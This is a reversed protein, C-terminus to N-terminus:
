AAAKKFPDVGPAEDHQIFRLLPKLMRNLLPHRHRAWVFMPEPKCGLRAKPELATRGFSVRRCGFRISQEVSAHLMRLYLPVGAGAVERDFGIHYAIATDGDRVTVIFALPKGERRAVLLSGDEGAARMLESWYSPRLTFPRLAAGGHVQLYLEHLADSETAAQKADLTEIICGADDFRKIVRSKVDSRYKSVLGGLYDAYTRWAPDLTLVMNPETDVRGYSLKGLVDSEQHLSDPLDKIIVLDMNGALKEARRMRYLAEAVGPWARARDAGPAFCVAHMGFTLANGCVLVRQTVREELKSLVSKARPSAVQTLNVQIVQACLGALPEDGNCILAYRPEINAPAVAQMMELYRRSFFFSQGASVADWSAPDLQGIRDALAIQLSTPRRVAARERLRARV